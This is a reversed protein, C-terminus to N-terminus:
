TLGVSGNIGARPVPFMLSLSGGYLSFYKPAGTAEAGRDTIGSSYSCSKSNNVSRNLTQSVM